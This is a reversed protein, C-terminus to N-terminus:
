SDKCKSIPADLDQRLSSLRPTRASILMVQMSKLSGRAFHTVIQAARRAWDVAAPSMVAIGASAPAALGDRKQRNEQDRTGGPLVKGPDGGPQDGCSGPRRAATSPSRPAPRSARIGTPGAERLRLPQGRRRGLQQDGARMSGGPAARWSGCRGPSLGHSHLRRGVQARGAREGSVVFLQMPAPRHRSPMRTSSSAASSIRPRRGVSYM